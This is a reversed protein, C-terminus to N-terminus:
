QNRSMVWDSFLEQHIYLSRGIKRVAYSLGNENRNRVLWQIQNKSFQPYTLHFTSWLLWQDVKKQVKCANSTTRDLKM